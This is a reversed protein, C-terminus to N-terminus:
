FRMHPAKHRFEETYHVMEVRSGPIGYLHLGTIHGSADVVEALERVAAPTTRGQHAGGNPWIEGEHM